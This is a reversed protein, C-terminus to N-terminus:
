RVHISLKAIAGTRNDRVVLNIELDTGQASLPPTAVLTENSIELWNPLPELTQWQLPTQVPHQLLSRLPLTRPEGASFNVQYENATFAPPHIVKFLNGILLQYDKPTIKEFFTSALLAVFKRANSSDNQGREFMEGWAMEHIVLGAQNDTDWQDWIRKDILYPKESPHFTKRRIATQILKCNPPLSIIGSDNVDQLEPGQTVWKAVRDFFSTAQALYNGYRIPDLNRIRELAFLVKTTVDQNRDGLAITIGARKAEYFDLIEYTWHGNVLCAISDGGSGATDKAIGNFAFLLLGAVWWKM